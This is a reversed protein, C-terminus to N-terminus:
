WSATLTTTGYPGSQCWPVLAVLAGLIFIIWNYPFVLFYIKMELANLSGLSSTRMRFGNSSYVAERMCFITCLWLFFAEKAVLKNHSKPFIIKPIDANLAGMTPDNTRRM